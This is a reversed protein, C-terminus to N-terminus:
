ARQARPPSLKRGYGRYRVVRLATNTPNVGGRLVVTALRGRCSSESQQGAPRLLGPFHVGLPPLPCQFAGCNTGAHWTGGQSACVAQPLDQCCGGPLCCAGLAACQVASCSVGGYWTGGRGACSAQSLDECCTPNAFCCAGLPPGAPGTLYFAMTLNQATWYPVSVLPFGLVADGSTAATTAWGWQPPYVSVSQFVIWTAPGLRGPSHGGMARGPQCQLQLIGPLVGDATEHVQTVTWTKLATSSPDSLGAGTPHGGADAYILVKFATANGAAGPQVLHGVLAGPLSTPARFCRSARPPRRTSRIPHTWNRRCHALAVSGVNDFIVGQGLAQGALAAATLVVAAYVYRVQPRM